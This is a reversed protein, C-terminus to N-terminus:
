PTSPVLEFPNTPAGAHTAGDGIWYLYDNACYGDLLVDVEISAGPDTDLFFGDSEFDTVSIFEVTDEGYLTVSDTGRELESPYLALVTSGGTPRVIVDFGCAYGSLDTDCTTYLFWRGDTQYEVFLGVGTAVDVEMVADTDITASLPTANCAGTSPYGDYYADNDDDYDCGSLVALLPLALLFPTRM